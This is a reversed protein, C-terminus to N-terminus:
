PAVGILRAAERDYDALARAVAADDWGLLPAVIGAATRAAARGADRTEFAIPTRRVLLDALTCALERDVAHVLEAGVYPLAADVRAALRADHAALAWVDRWATGHARVLRDAVADDGITRRAQAREDPALAGGPLPRAHTHPRRRAAGRLLTAASDVVQAAMARYTTLKGGSVTVLGRPDREIVHERSTAATGGHADAGRAAAALPRIGAWASVVDDRQLRAHPFFGNASRLLYAVDAETARVEDPGREAPTETTGIITFDGAPLVFMVRGDVPSLLTVAGHNGVRAAPVALHVGKAGLVADHDVPAVLRRVADGWPGAANVVVRAAADVVAGTLADEVVLRVAGGDRAPLTMARVTAHNVVCAGAHAADLATALTLRADDTAADWYFAGGVLGDRALAPERALVGAPGLPRHLAVNRFLALGDYLALGALLQWRPVRAGRYVPWTFGLPRVLHPATRLLIRRERSAEFVLGLHGHELYRVGGHVLRSSRSSTGAAFDDREVLAVRLGRLAADRAVGAGTIGGGGVLLDFPAAALTALAHARADRPAVDASAASPSRPRSTAVTM